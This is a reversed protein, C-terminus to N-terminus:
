GHGAKIKVISIAFVLIVFSGLLLAMIISRIRQRARIVDNDAATHQQWRFPPPVYRGQSIGPREEPANTM